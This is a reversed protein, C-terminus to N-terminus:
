GWGLGLGEGVQWPRDALADPKLEMMKVEGVLHQVEFVLLPPGALGGGGGGGGDIAKQLLKLPLQLQKAVAAGVGQQGKRGGAGGEAATAAEDAVVPKSGPLMGLLEEMREMSYVGKIGAEAAAAGAWQNDEEEAGEDEAAEGRLKRRAELRTSVIRRQVLPSIPIDEPKKGHVNARWFVRM